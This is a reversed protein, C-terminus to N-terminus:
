GRRGPEPPVPGHLREWEEVPIERVRGDEWVIIATGTQKATRLAREYARHLAAEIVPKSLPDPTERCPAGLGISIRDATRVM